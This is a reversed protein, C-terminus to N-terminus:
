DMRVAGPLSTSFSGKPGSMTLPKDAVLKPRSSPQVTAAHEPVM